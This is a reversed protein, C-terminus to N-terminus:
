EPTETTKNVKWQKAAECFAIKHKFDEGLKVKQESIYASVFKNYETPERPKKVKDKDKSKKKGKEETQESTKSLKLTNVENELAEIRSLLKNDSM